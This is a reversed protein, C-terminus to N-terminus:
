VSAARGRPFLGTLLVRSEYGEAGEIKLVGRLVMALADRDADTLGKKLDLNNTGAHVVWLRASKRAAIVGALGKLDQSADGLLRYAMNQIKGGGVGLNLVYFFRNAPRISFNTFKIFRANDIM